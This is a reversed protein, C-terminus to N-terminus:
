RRAWGGGTIRRGCRGAGARQDRDIAEEYRDIAATRDGRLEALRALAGAVAGMCLMGRAAM